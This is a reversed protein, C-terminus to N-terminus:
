ANHLTGAVAEFFKLGKYDFLFFSVVTIALLILLTFNVARMRSNGVGIRIRGSSTRKIHSKAGAQAVPSQLIDSDQM